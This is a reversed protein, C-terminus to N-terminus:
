GLASRSLGEARRCSPRSRRRDRFFIISRVFKLRHRAACSTNPSSGTARRAPLQGSLRCVNVAMVGASPKFNDPADEGDGGEHALGCPYPQARWRFWRSSRAHSISDLGLVTALSTHVRRVVCRVYDHDNREGGAPM